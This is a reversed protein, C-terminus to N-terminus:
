KALGAYGTRRVLEQGDPSLVYDIMREVYPNPDAERTILCLDVTLPYSGNEINELTPAVGDVSLVRVGDEQNLEEVFYRFSYGMAGKENAYQAVEHLVGAMADVREYTMPEKLSVDGMFWEMMTQSGSNRPRQFAAIPADKGGLEKWNTIDGHYIARIEDSTLGEVPNDAEVFFVFAERGIPTIKLKVGSEEADFLQSASPRAGFFLDVHRGYKDEDDPRILRNFAYITNTFSVIKGNYRVYDDSNAEMCAKEIAGIDQYCAKALAAYLPYCAEAGDMVPMEEPDEVTFPAPSLPEALKGADSYVTYDTLDTSSYGHMYLFGHGSYRKEPRNLYLILSVTLLILAIGAPILVKWAKGREKMFLFCSLFACLYTLFVTLFYSATQGLLQIQTPVFPLLLINTYSVLRSSINGKAAIMFGTFLAAVVALWIGNVWAAFRLDLVKRLLFYFLFTIGPILIFAAWFPAGLIGAILSLVAAAAPVGLTYLLALLIKKIM